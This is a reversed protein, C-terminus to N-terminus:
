SALMRAPEKPAGADLWELPTEDANTPNVWVVGRIEPVWPACNRLHERMRDDLSSVPAKDCANSAEILCADKALAKTLNTEQDANDACQDACEDLHARLIPDTPDSVYVMRKAAVMSSFWRSAYRSEHRDREAKLEPSSIVGFGGEAIRELFDRCASATPHETEGASRLISADIVLATSRSYRRTM